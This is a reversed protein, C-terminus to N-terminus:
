EAEEAALSRLRKKVESMRWAVTGEPIGLVAAVEAQTLAEGLVLAATDRLEVSLTAMAGELWLRAARAEAMEAQRAIEWDGWGDAARARTMQRRCLDAVANVVVRYLWTTFRAEHRFSALKAPLAACIDQALDQADAASGTLRWGLGYIRDYHRTVLAAFANRDGNQAALALTEDPTDMRM